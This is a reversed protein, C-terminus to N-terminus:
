CLNTEADHVCTLRGRDCGGLKKNFTLLLPISLNRNGESCCLIWRLNKPHQKQHSLASNLSINKIPISVLDADNVWKKGIKGKPASQFCFVWTSWFSVNPLFPNVREHCLDRDYLFWDVSKNLWDISQNRYSLSWRWSIPEYDRECKIFALFLYLVLLRWFANVM